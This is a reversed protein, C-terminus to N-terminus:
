GEIRKTQAEMRSAAWPALWPCSALGQGATILWHQAERCSALLDDRYARAREYRDWVGQDAGDEPYWRCSSNTCLRALSAADLAFDVARASSAHRLHPCDEVAHIVATASATTFGPFV